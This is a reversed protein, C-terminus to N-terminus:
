TSLHSPPDPFLHPLPFLSWVITCSFSSNKKYYFSFFLFFPFFMRTLSILWASLALCELWCIPSLNFPFVSKRCSLKGLINWIERASLWGWKKKKSLCNRSNRHKLRQGKDDMRWLAVLSLQHFSTMKKSRFGKRTKGEGQSSIGIGGWTQLPWCSGSEVGSQM